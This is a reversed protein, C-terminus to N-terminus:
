VDVVMIRIYSEGDDAIGSAIGFVESNMEDEIFGRMDDCGMYCVCTISRGNEASVLQINEIESIINPILDKLLM